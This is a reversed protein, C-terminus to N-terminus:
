HDPPRALGLRDKHSTKRADSRSSFRFPVPSGLRRLECMSHWGSGATDIGAELGEDVTEEDAVNDRIPVALPSPPHDTPFGSQYDRRLRGKPGTRGNQQKSDQTRQDTILFRRQIRYSFFEDRGKKRHIFNRSM